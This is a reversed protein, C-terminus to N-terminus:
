SGPASRHGGKGPPIVATRDLQEHSLGPVMRAAAAGERRPLELTEARTCHEHEEAHQANYRHVMAMTLAPLRRGTAVAEVLGALVAHDSALHHATVGVSWGDTGARAAWQAETLGEVIAILRDNAEEFRDAPARARERM